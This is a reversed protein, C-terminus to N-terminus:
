NQSDEPLTAAIRDRAVDSIAHQYQDDFFTDFRGRGGTRRVGIDLADRYARIARERGLSAFCCSDHRNFVQLQLRGRGDAGLLYLDLYDALAYLGPVTQEWDGADKDGRLYNPLSAAVPYSGAVRPDIAAYLTTTWGGGSIGAMHVSQFETEALAQNLAVAVPEVFYHIPTFTDSELAAFDDHTMLPHAVGDIEVTPTSNKGLLPMSLALVTYGRALFFAITAKGWYFTGDHGQHYIALRGVDVTPVFRYVISDVGYEMGVTIRDIELLNPLDAYDADDIDYAVGDALRTPFGAGKWIYDVLAARVSAAEPASRIGIQALPDVGPMADPPM